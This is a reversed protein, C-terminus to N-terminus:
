SDAQGNEKYNISGDAISIDTTGYDKQLEEQLKALLDQLEFVQHLLNHKRTELVGVENQTSSIAKVLSQM